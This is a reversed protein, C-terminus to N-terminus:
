HAVSSANRRQGPGVTRWDDRFLRDAAYANGYTRPENAPCRAKLRLALAALVDIDAELGTRRVGGGKAELSM